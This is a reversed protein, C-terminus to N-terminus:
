YLSCCDVFCVTYYCCTTTFGYSLLDFYKYMDCYSVSYTGDGCVCNVECLWLLLRDECTVYCSCKLLTKNISRSPKVARAVSLYDCLAMGGVTTCCSLCTHVLSNTQSLMFYCQWSDQSSLLSCTDSLAWDEMHSTVDLFRNLRMQVPWLICWKDGRTNPKNFCITLRFSLSISM